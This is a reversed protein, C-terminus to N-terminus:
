QTVHMYGSCLNVGESFRCATQVVFEYAMHIDYFLVVERLDISNYHIPCFGFGLSRNRLCRRSVARRCSSWPRSM